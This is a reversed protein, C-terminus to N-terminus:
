GATILCVQNRGVARWCNAEVRAGGVFLVGLRKEHVVGGLLCTCIM